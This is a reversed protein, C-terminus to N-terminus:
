TGWFSYRVQLQGQNSILVRFRYSNPFKYASAMNAILKFVVFRFNYAYM